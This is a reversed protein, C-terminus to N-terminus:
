KFEEPDYFDKESPEEKKGNPNGIPKGFLKGTSKISVYVYAGAVSLALIACIIIALIVPTKSKVKKAPVNQQTPTPTPVPTTEPKGTEEPAATESVDEAPVVSVMFVCTKGEYSVTVMQRKNAETFVTPDCSFGTIKESKKGSYNATVEMGSMDLEEGVKYELKTPTKTVAISSISNDEVVTVKFTCSATEYMVTITQTGPFPLVSPSCKFGTTVLEFGSGKEVKLEMGTTDLKEGAKYELKDPMKTIGLDTIKDDAVTVSFTAQKDGYTVTITETGAKTFKTEPVTVDNRIENKGNSYSVNISLGSTDLTDGVTYATKAPLTAISISSVAASSVTVSIPSSAAGVTQGGVTNSVYCYYYLTGVASTDVSLSASNAGSIVTGDANSKVTNKYWQYSVSSGDGVNGVSVSVVASEGQSCSVDAGATVSPVPASVTLSYEIIDYTADLYTARLKFSFTGVQTPTGRLYFSRTLGITEVLEIGAPLANGEEDDVDLKFTLLPVTDTISHDYYAGAPASGLNVITDACAAPAATVLLLLAMLVAFFRKKM